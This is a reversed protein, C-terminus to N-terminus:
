QRIWGQISQVLVREHARVNRESVLVGVIRPGEDLYRTMFTQLSEASTSPGSEGDWTDSGYISWTRGVSHALSTVTETQLAYDVKESARANAVDTETIFGPRVMADLVEKLRDAAEPLRDTTTRAFVKLPGVHNRALYSIDLEHFLGSQVLERQFPGAPDSAIYSLTRAAAAGEPDSGVSPGHWSVQFTVDSIDANVVFLTDAAIEPIEPFTLDAFPDDGSKWKKFEEETAALVADPDIDGTVILAANNPRYYRRYHDKLLDTNTDQISIINGIGNKQRFSTGWLYLETYFDLLFYPNSTNRELEGQVVEQEDDLDSRKFNPDRVMRAMLKIADGVNESPVTFYYTVAEDSTTGNYTGDIKGIESGFSRYGKFLMHELVHPLGEEEPALQTFAGNRFVVEVTALPISGSPVTILELGNDLQTVQLRPAVTQASASAFSLQAALFVLFLRAQAARGRAYLSM